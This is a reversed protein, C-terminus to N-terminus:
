KTCIPFHMSDFCLETLTAKHIRRGDFCHEICSFSRVLYRYRLNALNERLLSGTRKMQMINNRDELSPYARVPPVIPVSQYEIAEIRDVEIIRLVEYRNSGQNLCYV